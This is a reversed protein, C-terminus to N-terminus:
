LHFYTEFVDDSVKVLQSEQRFGTLMHVAFTGLMELEKISVITGLKQYSVAAAAAYFAHLTSEVENNATVTQSSLPTLPEWVASTIWPGCVSVLPPSVLNLLCLYDSKTKCLFFSKKDQKNEFQHIFTGSLASRPLLVERGARRLLRQLNERASLLGDPRPRDRKRTQGETGNKLLLFM